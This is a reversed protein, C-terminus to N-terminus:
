LAILRIMAVYAREIVRANTTAPGNGGQKEIASEQRWTQEIAKWDNWIDKAYKLAIGRDPKTARACRELAAVYTLASRPVDFRSHLTSYLELSVSIPAHSYYVDLYANLLRTTLEVNEFGTSPGDRERESILAFLVDAERLVEDRTQPPLKPININADSSSTIVNTAPDGQDGGGDDGQELTRKRSTSEM